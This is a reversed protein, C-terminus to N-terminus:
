SRVLRPEVLDVAPASPDFAQAHGGPVVGHEIGREAAADLNLQHFIEDSGWYAFLDVGAPQRFTMRSRSGALGSASISPLHNGAEIMRKTADPLPLPFGEWYAQWDGDIARRHRADLTADDPVLGMEELIPRPDFLTNGGYVVTGFREPHASAALTAIVAGRSYGWVDVRELGIDDLVALLHEVLKDPAYDDPEDSHSSRGHGLPDVAIVRRSRALREVYGADIWRQISMTHGPILVVPEAESQGQVGYALEHDGHETTTIDM